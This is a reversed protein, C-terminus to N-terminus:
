SQQPASIALYIGALVILFAFGNFLCIQQAFLLMALIASLVPIALM